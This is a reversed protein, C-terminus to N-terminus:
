PLTWVPADSNTEACADFDADFDAHGGAVFDGCPEYGPDIADRTTPPGEGKCHGCDTTCTWDCQAYRTM